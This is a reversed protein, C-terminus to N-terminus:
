PSSADAAGPAVIGLARLGARLQADLAEPAVDNEIVLDARARKRERPTQHAERRRITEADLGRAAARELRLADPVAVYWLADCYRDLATELLLPVDLILLPEPGAARFQGVAAVLATRVPPHLLAELRALLQPDSFVRTALAAVDPRGAQVFGAGLAAELRGDAAALALLEKALADADVVRGGALAAARRAVHSKGSAVAGLLGLVRRPPAAPPTRDPM